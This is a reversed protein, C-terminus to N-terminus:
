RQPMRLSIIRRSALRARTVVRKTAQGGAGCPVTVAVGGEGVAVEVALV